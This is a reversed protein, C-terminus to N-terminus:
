DSGILSVTFGGCPTWVNGASDTLVLAAAGQAGGQAEGAIARLYAGCAYGEVGGYRVRPWDGESLVALAAGRPAKVLVAGDVGAADRINLSGSQTAVIATYLAGSEMKEGGEANVAKLRAAYTWGGLSNDHRTTPTTCHCIDLPHVGLVVGVHYYDRQDPHGAYAAPLAWGIEGPARSKFVVDGVCLEQARSVRRLGSVASRAAYNSGHTGTWKGGARRIGGIILGICDCTGDIASGGKRYVPAERDIERVKSLFVSQLVAM